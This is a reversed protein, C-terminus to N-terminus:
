LERVEDTGVNKSVAVLQVEGAGAKAAEIRKLIEDLRM